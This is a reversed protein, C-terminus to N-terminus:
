RRKIEYWERVNNWKYEGDGLLEEAESGPEPGALLAPYDDIWVTHVAGENPPKGYLMEGALTEFYWTEGKIFTVGKGVKQLEYVSSGKGGMKNQNNTMEDFYTSWDPHYRGVISREDVEVNMGFYRKLDALDKETMPENDIYIMGDAEYQGAAPNYVKNPYSWTAM